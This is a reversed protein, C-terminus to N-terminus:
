HKLTFHGKLEFEKEGQKINAVYWYDSTPMLYGNYFGNWGPSSHSLTKLLKGYRDFIYVITGELEEVGIVHWTDNYLDDNPTFFLPIDFVIVEKTVSNCGLQDIVTVLHAGYSVNEFINSTQPLGNDLQFLYNGIGSVDITISNNPASFDVTETFEITATESEVLTFSASNSCGDITTITVNFSGITNIEISATTAGTSWLYADTSMGTEASVVLPLNDLCLAQDELTIRPKRFVTTEFNAFAVCNTINNEVRIVYNTGNPSNINLDELANENALADSQSTHYTVIHNVPNLSGLVNPTQLGLNFPEILDFDQDFQNDCAELNSIPSLTPPNNIQIEFSNTNYCNSGNFNARVFLTTTNSNYVFPNTLEGTQTDANNQSEYFELNINTQTGILSSTTTTFDFESATNDCIEFIQNSNIAPPVDVNLVYEITDFCNSATNLIYIIVTQPNTINTYNDPTTILNTSNDFDDQSPFYSISIDERDRETINALVENTTTTLNFTM